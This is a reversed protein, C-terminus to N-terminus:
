DATRATAPSRGTEGLSTIAALLPDKREFGKQWQDARPPAVSDAPEGPQNRGRM